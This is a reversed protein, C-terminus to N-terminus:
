DFMRDLTIENLSKDFVKTNYTSSSNNLLNTRSIDLQTTEVDAKLDLTSQKVQDTHKKIMAFKHRM